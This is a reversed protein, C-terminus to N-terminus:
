YNVAECLASGLNAIHRDLSYESAIHRRGAQGMRKALERNGALLAIYEAMSRTDGPEVIFGTTPHVVAEPIGAHRTSIVPLGAAAAELIAVPTGESDGNSAQISHQLFAFSSGMIRAVDAPERYSLLEVRSTLGWAASLRETVELLEGEGVMCLRLDPCTNSALRFADLTLYPAKKYTHRGVCILQNSFYDPRVDAFLPSPGYPNLRIKARPCGLAVLQESMAHSVSIVSVAYDFLKAYRDSYAHLTEFRSADFGHFHAVVPVGALECAPTAYAAATGYEALVVDVKAALLFDRLVQLDGPAPYYKRRLRFELLRPLVNLWSRSKGFAQAHWDALKQGDRELNAEYGYIHLIEHPLRDLHARIFTETVEIPGPTLICVRLTLHISTIQEFPIAAIFRM